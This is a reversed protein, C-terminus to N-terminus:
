ALARMRLRWKDYPTIREHLSPRIPPPRKKETTQVINTTVSEDRKSDLPAVSNFTSAIMNLEETM